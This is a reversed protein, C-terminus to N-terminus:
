SVTLTYLPNLAGTTLTSNSQWVFDGERQNKATLSQPAEVLAADALEFEVDGATVTLAGDGELTEGRMASQSKLAAEAEAMTVGQVAATVKATLSGFIMGLQNEGYFDNPVPNTKMDFAVEAGEKTALGDAWPSGNAWALVPSARLLETHDFSTDSFSLYDISHFAGAPDAPDQGNRVFSMFQLSGLLAKGSSLHLNPVKTLAASYYKIRLGDFLHLILPRTVCLIVGSGASTIDVLGTVAGTDLAHAETDYLKLTTTSMGTVRAYYRTTKSLGAPATGRWYVMVEDGDSLLHVSACTLLDSAHTITVPYEEVNILDGESLAAPRDLLPSLESTRGSPTFDFPRNVRDHGFFIGFGEVDFELVDRQLPVNLAGTHYFKSGRHTVM